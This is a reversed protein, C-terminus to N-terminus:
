SCPRSGAAGFWPLSRVGGLRRCMSARFKSGRSGRGCSPLHCERRTVQMFGAGAAELPAGPDCAVAEVLALDRAHSLAADPPPAAGHRGHGDRRAIRRGANAAARSRAGVARAADAGTRPWCGVVAGVSAQLRLEAVAADLRPSAPEAVHASRGLIQAEAADAAAAAAVLASAAQTIGCACAAAAAVRAAAAAAGAAAATPAYGYRGAAM